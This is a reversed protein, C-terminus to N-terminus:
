DGEGPSTIDAGSALAKKKILDTLTPVDVIANLAPIICDSSLLGLASIEVAGVCYNLALAEVLADAEESYTFAVDSKKGEKEAAAAAVFIAIIREAHEWLRRYEERIAGEEWGSGDAKLRKPSPLTPRWTMGAPGEYYRRAVPVLWKKVDGFEVFHGPLQKPRALDEPGPPADKQWGIWYGAGDYPDVLVPAKQWEQEDAKLLYNTGRGVIYGPPGLPPGGAFQNYQADGETAHAAGAAKLAAEAQKPSTAGPVFYLFSSM